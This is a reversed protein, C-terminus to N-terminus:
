IVPAAEQDEIMFEQAPAEDKASSNALSKVDAMLNFGDQAVVHRLKKM